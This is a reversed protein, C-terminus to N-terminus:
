LFDSHPHLITMTLSIMRREEARVTKEQQLLLM